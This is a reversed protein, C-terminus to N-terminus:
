KKILTALILMHRFLPHKIAHFVQANHANNSMEKRATQQYEIKHLLPNDGIHTSHQSPPIIQM